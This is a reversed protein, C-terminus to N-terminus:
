TTENLSSTLETVSSRSGLELAFFRCDMPGGLDSSTSDFEGINWVRLPQFDNTRKDRTEM